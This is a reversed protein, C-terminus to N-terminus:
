EPKTLFHFHTLKADRDNHYKYGTSRHLDASKTVTEPSTGTFHVSDPKQEKMFDHAVQTAHLGVKNRSFDHHERDWDVDHKFHRENAPYSKGTIPHWHVRTFDTKINSPGIKGHHVYYDHDTKNDDDM